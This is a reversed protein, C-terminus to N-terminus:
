MLPDEFGAGPPPKGKGMMAGIGAGLGAGALGGLAGGLGAGKGAGMAAKNGLLAGSAGGALGGLGGGIAAGEGIPAGPPEPMGPLAEAGGPGGEILGMDSLIGMIKKKTAPDTQPDMLMGFLQEVQQMDPGPPPGAPAGGPPPPMGAEPPPPPMGGMDGGPPPPMGGMDGGPPPPMGLKGAAPGQKPDMIMDTVGPNKRQIHPSAAPADMSNRGLVGARGDEGLFSVDGDSLLGLEHARFLRPDQNSM